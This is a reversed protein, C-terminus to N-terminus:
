TDNDEGTEAVTIKISNYYEDDKWFPYKDIMAKNRKDCEKLAENIDLFCDEYSYLRDCILYNFNISDKDITIEIKDIKRFCDDNYYNLIDWKYYVLFQNFVYKRYTLIYVKDELNFPTIVKM